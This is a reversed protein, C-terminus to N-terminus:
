KEPKQAILIVYPKEDKDKLPVQSISTLQCTQIEFGVKEFSKKLVKDDLLHLFQPLEYTYKSATYDHINGIEGPWAFNKKQREQYIPLVKKFFIRYVTPAIVYVRGKPKLWTFMAAAGRDIEKGPLFQLIRSAMIHNFSQPSFALGTPFYGRNLTLNKRLMFPCRKYIEDLNDQSLDNAVVHAGRELAPLTNVGLAAGIDLVSDGDSLNKLFDLGLDDPALLTIGYGNQTREFGHPADKTFIEQNEDHEEFSPQNESTLLADASVSVDAYTVEPSKQDNFGSEATWLPYSLLLLTAYPNMYYRKQITM